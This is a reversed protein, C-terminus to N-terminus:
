RAAQALQREAQELATRAPENGPNIALAHRYFGAAIQPEGRALHINGRYVYTMEFRPDLKEAEALAALAEEQRNRKGYIMGIQAYVLATPAIKAADRLKAVADDPRNLCELALAWDVLLREDPKQLKAVRQYNADARSCDGNKWQAYALQFVARPNDPAKATADTWFTLPDTWVKSRGYTAVACAVLLVSLVATRTHGGRWRRLFEVTIVLLCVFPLYLRREVIVDRIPVVSSTPSLLLLFGFWGFAALPYERRYMWALVSVGVLAALAAIAGHEMLSHSVPFSWDGNLGVPLLYLRLYTWIVRFQTFLYQYWTFDEIKFGASDATSLVRAVAIVGLVGGVAIPAYLRLNRRIGELRYPTTFFYDALLLLGPLVTTHEKVTCAVGFLVLVTLTRGWSIVDTPRTLFVAFAALFFFVSMTESRSTIYAVSETLVPHLLFLAGAFGALTERTAGTEGVRSLLRRVIVWALVANLGHFLVGVAHYPWPDLGSNQYNLWYSIMLVPRVGLWARLPANQMDPVQFPLYDDDFLFEGNLAPGYVEFAVFISALAALLIMWAQLRRGQLTPDAAATATKRPPPGEGREATQRKRSSM